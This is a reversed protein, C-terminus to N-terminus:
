LCHQPQLNQYLKNEHELCWPWRPIKSSRPIKARVGCVGRSVCVWAGGFCVGLVGGDAVSVAFHLVGDNEARDSSWKWARLALAFFFHLFHLV